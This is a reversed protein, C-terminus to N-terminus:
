TKKENLVELAAFEMVQIDKFVAKWNKVLSKLVVQAGVYDLGLWIMAGSETIKVRWQTRCKLFCELAVVNESWVEFGGSSEDNGDLERSAQELVEFSMGFMDADRQLQARQL